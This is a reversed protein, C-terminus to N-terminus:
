RVVSQSTGYGTRQLWAMVSDVTTTRIRGTFRLYNPHDDFSINATTVRAGLRKLTSLHLETPEYGLRKLWAQAAQRSGDGGNMATALTELAWQNSQQYDTAWPYALMSYHRTHIRGALYPEQLYPLLRQQVDKRLPMIGAIYQHPSDLFFDGVGQRYVSAEDTGCQNLKHVVRWVNGDKYALGMHSYRLDYDSLDQGVRALLVVQEGIEDLRKVTREALGLGQKISEVRQPKVECDRGAQAPTAALGVWAAAAMAAVWRSCWLTPRPKLANYM